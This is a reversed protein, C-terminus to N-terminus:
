KALSINTGNITVVASDITHESENKIMVNTEEGYHTCAILFFYLIALLAKM